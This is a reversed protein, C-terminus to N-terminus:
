RRQKRNAKAALEDVKERLETADRFFDDASETKLMSVPVPRIGSPYALATSFKDREGWSALVTILAITALVGATTMHRHRTTMASALAFHGSLLVFILPIGLLWTLANDLHMNPLTVGIWIGAANVLELACLVLSALTLHAVFNFRHLIVRSGLSWLAAWLAVILLVFVGISVHKVPEAREYNGLWASISFVVVVLLAVPVAVRPDSLRSFSLDNRMPLAPSSPQEPDQFRLHTAGIRLELGPRMAIRTIRTRSKPEFTGNVSGADEIALTGDEAPVLRLHEADVYPDDVIVDNSYGRGITAPLRTLRDRAQVRGRGDLVEVVVQQAM